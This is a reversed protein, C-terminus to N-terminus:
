WAMQGKVMDVFEGPGYVPVASPAFDQKNRTVICDAGAAVASFYQLADEKDKWGCELTKEIEDSGLGVVKVFKVIKYLNANISDKPIGYSKAVYLNNIISIPSVMLRCKGSYGLSFLEVATEFFRERHCTLDILVNTDIFVKM